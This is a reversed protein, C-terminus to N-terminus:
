KGGNHYLKLHTDMRKEIREDIDKEYKDIKNLIAKVDEKLENLQYRILEHNNEKTDKVAKDKRNVAFNLVTMVASLISITLAITLEM